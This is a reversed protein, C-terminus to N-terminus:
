REHAHCPQDSTAMYNKSKGIFDIPKKWIEPM